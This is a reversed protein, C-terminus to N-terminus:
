AKIYAYPYMLTEFVAFIVSKIGPIQRQHLEGPKWPLTSSDQRPCLSVSTHSNAKGTGSLGESCVEQGL